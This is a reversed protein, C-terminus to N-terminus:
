LAYFASNNQNKFQKKLSENGVLGFNESKKDDEEKDNIYSAWFSSYLERLVKPKKRTM